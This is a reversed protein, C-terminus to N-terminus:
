EMLEWPFSRRLEAVEDRHATVTVVSQRESEAPVTEVKLLVKESRGAKRWYFFGALPAFLILGFWAISPAPFLISLVLALCLIGIAALVTLFVGLFLSPRVVGELCLRITKQM